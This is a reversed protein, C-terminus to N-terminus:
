GLGGGTAAPVVIYVQRTDLVASGGARVDIYAVFVRASQEGPLFDNQFTIRFKVLTGPVVGFFTSTDYAAVATAHDVGLPETWCLEDPFSQCRPQRRKIFNRADVSPTDTSDDRLATDVDLPVRTAVTQIATVLTDLFVTDDASNPLDYVLPNGDLDVSGTEEATRKEFYCPSSGSPGTLTSCAAGGSANIGVYKAGRRNMAAIMETWTTPAPSIGTYDDCSARDEGPPGNHSCIDTFHVIIPLAADRFCPAGYGTDLCRERYAELTYSDGSYTWTEGEGTITRYLAETQSEPGDNGGHLGIANFATQVDDREEPPTMGIAVILPEDSGGGYGGFPMDDHQGGGIWADPIAEGVQDILGGPRTTVAKVNSITGGMSGTTDTLLFVDAVRITTGFELDREEPAGEYPLVVYYDSDPISCASDAACDCAPSKSTLPDPCNVRAYAGEALDDTGDDDSDIDCPDSGYTREEGDGFGDNDSDGDVYDPFGDAALERTAPDIEAGCASPPTELDGDGAEIADTVGDGDSDLDRWAGVMDGDPDLNGEHVDKISDGDSDLDLLDPTGDGDTDAATAGSGFEEVNNIRDGDVDLDVNDFVGDGDSDTSRQGVDLIGDGNGDTDVFDAIGDGDSDEPPTLCNSDGAEDRDLLGDNDSDTDEKNPTGDGDTDGEGEDMSSIFDGDVDDRASCRTVVGGDGGPGADGGDKKKDEACGVLGSMIVIIGTWLATRQMECTHGVWTPNSM